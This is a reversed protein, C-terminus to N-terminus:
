SFVLGIDGHLVKYICKRLRFGLMLISLNWMHGDNMYM